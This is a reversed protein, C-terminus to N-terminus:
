LFIACLYAVGMIPAFAIDKQREDKFVVSLILGGMSGALFWSLREMGVMGGLFAAFKVDGAGFVNQKTFINTLHYAGAGCTAGLIYDEPATTTALFLGCVLGGLTFIDPLERIAIDILCASLVWVCILLYVGILTSDILTSDKFSWALLFATGGGVIEPWAGFHHARASRWTLYAYALGRAIFGAITGIFIWILM